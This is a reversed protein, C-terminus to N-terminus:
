GELRGDTTVATRVRAEGRIGAFCAHLAAGQEVSPGGGSPAGRSCPHASSVRRSESPSLTPSIKKPAKRPPWPSGKGRPPKRSPLLVGERVRSRTRGGRLPSTSPTNGSDERLPAPRFTRTHGRPGAIRGPWGGGQPSTPFAPPMEPPPNHPGARAEAISKRRPRSVRPRCRESRALANSRGELPLNLAHGM